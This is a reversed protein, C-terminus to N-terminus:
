GRPERSTAWRAAIGAADDSAEVLWADLCAAMEEPTRLHEAVDCALTKTRAVNSGAAKAM